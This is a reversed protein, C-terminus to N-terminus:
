VNEKEAEVEVVCGTGRVEMRVCKVVKRQAQEM